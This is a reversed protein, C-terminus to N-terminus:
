LMPYPKRRKAKSIVIRYWELVWTKNVFEDRRRRRGILATPRVCLISSFSDPLCFVLVFNHYM